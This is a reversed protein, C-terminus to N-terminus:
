SNLRASCFFPASIARKGESSSPARNRAEPQPEGDSRSRVTVLLSLREAMPRPPRAYGFSITARRFVLNRRKYSVKTANHVSHVSM